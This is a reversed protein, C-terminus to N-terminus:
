GFCYEPGKTDGLRIGHTNERNALPPARQAKPGEVPLAPLAILRWCLASFWHIFLFIM